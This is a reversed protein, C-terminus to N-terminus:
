PPLCYSMTRTSKKLFPLSTKMNKSKPMTPELPKLQICYHTTDNTASRRRRDQDFVKIENQQDLLTKAMALCVIFDQEIGAREDFESELNDSNILEIQTQLEDYKVSQSELKSLKLSLEAVEITTLTAQKTIKDLYNKFRTIQGKVSSRKTILDKLTQNEFLSM